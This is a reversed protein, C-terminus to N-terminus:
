AEDGDFKKLAAAAAPNGEKKGLEIAKKYWEKAKEQDKMLKGTRDIVKGEEFDKGLEYAAQSDRSAVELRHKYAQQYDSVEDPDIERMLNGLVIMAKWAYDTELELARKLLPTAKLVTKGQILRTAENYLKEFEEDRKKKEAPTLVAQIAAVPPAIAAAAKSDKQDKQKAAIGKSQCYSRLAKNLESDKLKLLELGRLQKELKDSGIYGLGIMARIVDNQEVMPSEEYELVWKELRSRQAASVGEWGKLVFQRIFLDCLFDRVPDLSKKDIKLIADVLLGVHSEVIKRIEEKCQALSEGEKAADLAPYVALLNSLHTAAEPVARKKAEELEKRAKKLLDEAYKEARVVLSGDVGIDKQARNQAEIIIAQAKSRLDKSKQREKETEAKFRAIAANASAKIGNIENAGKSRIEAAKTKASANISAATQRLESAKQRAKILPDTLSEGNVPRRLHIGGMVRLLDNYSDRIHEDAQVIIEEQARLVSEAERATELAKKSAELERTIRQSLAAKASALESAKRRQIAQSNEEAKALISSAERAIAEAEKERAAAHKLKAEEAEKIKRNEESVLEPEVVRGKPKDAEKSKEDHEAPKDYVQCFLKFRNQTGPSVKPNTILESLKSILKFNNKELMKVNRSFLIVLKSAIDEASQVKGKCFIGSFWSGKASTSIRGDDTVEINQTQYDYELFVRLSSQFPDNPMRNM